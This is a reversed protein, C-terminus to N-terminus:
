PVHFDEWDSYGLIANARKIANRHFMMAAQIEGSTEILETVVDISRVLIYVALVCLAPAFNEFSSPLLSNLRELRVTALFLYISAIACSTSAIIAFRLQARVARHRQDLEYFQALVFNRRHQLQNAQEGPIEIDEM